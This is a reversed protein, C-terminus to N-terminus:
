MKSIFYIEHDQGANQGVVEDKSYGFLKESASNFDDVIGRDNITIMCGIANDFISRLREEQKEILTQAQKQKSIDQLTGIFFKKGDLRMEGISLHVPVTSGDKRQAVVERGIGIVKKHGTQRYASLYEDHESAFSHPMLMKVNKGIVEERSYGFLREAAVNFTDVKGREDITIMSSLANDFISRLREEQKEILSQAQKQKSIDQLTGIFFKKGDLRMEGISLHVPVTSGDKRQAVVERGIGIVKKHGTQRYASLYEDHESAFSHPMLMKVNKGIVEERSYGFLKEAAVNFTDVTGKDDITIMSGLANDFISRLREEQKRIITEADKQERIDQLTGIYYTEGDLTMEGISLHVPVTTGDKRKAVVERGIGIVKKEGTKQYSKLYQDHNNAFIDPMLMKVNKGIVEERSYGFLDEAAHNFTDIIGKSNITVMCSISSDFISRLREEQKKIEVTQQHTQKLLEETRNLQTAKIAGALAQTMQDILQRQIATFRHFSGLEVVALVDQEHYIIPHMLVNSLKVEGISLHLTLSKEPIDALLISQKDKACQQIIGYHSDNFQQNDDCGYRAKCVFRNMPTKSSDAQKIVYIAGYSADSNRAIFSVADELLGGLTSNDQLLVSFQALQTKMWNQQTLEQSRKLVISQMEDLAQGLLIAEKFGNLEVREESEETGINNSITIAKQFPTSFLRLLYWWVGIAASVIVVISLYFPRNDLGSQYFVPAISVLIVGLFIFLTVGIKASLSLLRM